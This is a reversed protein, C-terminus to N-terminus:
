LAPGELGIRSNLDGKGRGAASRSRTGLGVEPPVRRVRETRSGFCLRAWGLAGEEGGGCLGVKFYEEIGMVASRDFDLHTFWCDLEFKRPQRGLLDQALATRLCCCWLRTFVDAHLQLFNGRLLKYQQYAPFATHPLVRAHLVRHFWDPQGCFSSSQASM